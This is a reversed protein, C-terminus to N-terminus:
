RGPRMEERLTCRKLSKPLRDSPEEGQDDECETAGCLSLERRTHQALRQAPQGDTPRQDDTGTAQLAEVPEAATAVLSPLTALAGELDHLRTHAYRGITLTPTSHRALEQAVKVSAGGNVISSIYAHRTAHFDFVEGAANRYSLFDSKKRDATEAEGDAKAIWAKRAARMDARLMRALNHPLNDFLRQTPSRSSLWAQVLEALDRRIPQVDLRRRKSHAAKVTCTPLDSDLDFSAPTLSRLESSRFGTGLALRYLMARDPGPLSNKPDTRLETTSILLQLEEAPLDRRIHRPDTAANFSTLSALADDRIRKDHRLWRSFGKMARLYHNCTKLSRGSDRLSKLAAQVASANLDSIREAGIAAILKQAQVFTEECHRATNAKGILLRRFDELHESLPRRGELAYRDDSADIVGDRRLAADSDLKGAVREAAAKDTTRLCKTRRKGTHDFWSVYYSGGRNNQGGRKFVTAM